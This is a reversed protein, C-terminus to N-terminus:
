KQLGLTILEQITYDKTKDLNDIFSDVEKSNLGLTILAEKADNFINQGEKDFEIKGELTEIIKEATKPGVGKVKKFSNLDKKNVMDMLEAPTNKALISFAKKDGIGDVTLLSMFFLKSNYDFFGYLTERGDEKQIHVIDLNLIDNEKYDHYCLPIFVEYGIAENVLITTSVPNKRFVKGILFDIM